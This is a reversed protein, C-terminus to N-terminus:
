SVFGVFSDLYLSPLKFFSIFDLFDVYVYDLDVRAPVDNVSDDSIENLTCVSQVM